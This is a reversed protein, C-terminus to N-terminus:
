VGMRAALKLIDEWAAAGVVYASFLVVAGMFCHIAIRKRSEPWKSVWDNSLMAAVLVSAVLSFIYIGATLKGIVILM